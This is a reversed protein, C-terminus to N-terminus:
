LDLFRLNSVCDFIYTMSVLEVDAIALTRSTRSAGSGSSAGSSPLRTLSDHLLYRRADKLYKDYTPKKNGSYIIMVKAGDSSGDCDLSRDGM